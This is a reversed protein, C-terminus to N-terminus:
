LKFLFCLIKIYFIFIGDFKFLYLIKGILVQPLLYIYSRLAYEPSYEWTQFGKNAILFTTPEWYNYTEDCDSIPNFYASLVRVVLSIAFFYFPFTNINKKVM